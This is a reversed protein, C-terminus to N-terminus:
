VKQGVTVTTPKATGSSTKGSSSYDTPNKVKGTVSLSQDSGTTDSQMSSKSGIAASVATMYNQNRQNIQSQRLEQMKAALNAAYDTNVRGQTQANQEAAQTIQKQVQASQRATEDSMQRITEATARDQNALTQLTYSSRGMGRALAATEIGAKSKAGLAEQQAAAKALSAALIEIEQQKALATADYEQQAAELAANRQPALLQEAYAAIEEDTMQGILGAMIRNVMDDNLTKSTETVQTTSSKNESASDTWSTALYKNKAEKAM